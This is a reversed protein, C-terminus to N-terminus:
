SGMRTGPGARTGYGPGLERRVNRNGIETGDWARGILNGHDLTV